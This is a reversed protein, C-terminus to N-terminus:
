RCVVWFPDAGPQSDVRCMYSSVNQIRRTTGIGAYRQLTKSFINENKVPEYCAIDDYFDRLRRMVQTASSNQSRLQTPHVEIFLIPKDRQLVGTAGELANAEYGEIDMKILDVHDKILNDITDIQVQFPANEDSTVGSNIGAKLGVLETANGVAKPIVTVRDTLANREVNLLLEKLNEPSPEIATVRGQPGVGKGFMLLYYGINAGVDVVHFGPKVVSRILKREAIWREGELYLLRSPGQRSVDSIFRYGFLPRSLLTGGPVGKFLRNSRPWSKFRNVWFAARALQYRVNALTSLLQVERNHTPFVNTNLPSILGV